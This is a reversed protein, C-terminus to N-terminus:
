QAAIGDLFAVGLLAFGNQDVHLRLRLLPAAADVALVGAVDIVARHAEPARVRQMDLGAGEAAEVAAAAVPGADWFGLARDGRALERRLRAALQLARSQLCSFARRYCGRRAM